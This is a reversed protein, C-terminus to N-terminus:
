LDNLTDRWSGPVRVMLGFNNQPTFLKADYVLNMSGAGKVFDSRTVIAGVVTASGTGVVVYNDTATATAAYFMGYAVIAGNFDINASSGIVLPRASTGFSRDPNDTSVAPRNSMGFQIATDAWFKEVGKNTYVDM